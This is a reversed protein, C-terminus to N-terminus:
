RVTDLSTGWYYPKIYVPKVECGDEHISNLGYM